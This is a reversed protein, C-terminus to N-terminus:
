NRVKNQNYLRNVCARVKTRIISEEYPDVSGKDFSQRIRALALEEKDDSSLNRMRSDEEVARVAEEVIREILEWERASVDVNLKKSIIQCGKKVLIIAFASITPVALKVVIDLLDDLM